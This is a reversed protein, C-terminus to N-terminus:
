DDSPDPKNKAPKTNQAAHTAIIQEYVAITASATKETSFETAIWEKARTGIEERRTRDQYLTRLAAVLGRPEAPEALLLRHPDGRLERMVPLDFAIVPVGVSMAELVTNPTGETRSPFALVDAAALLTAPDDLWDLLKVRDSVTKTRIKKTINRLENGAGAIIFQLPLDRTQAAAEILWEIRKVPDFRGYWAVIFRDHPVGLSQLAARREVVAIERVLPPVVHVQDRKRGFAHVVHDRLSESNVIHGQDWRATLRELRKHWPREVEVTATSTVLPLKLRRCAWRAAINAHFLSAHCVDPAFDRLSKTLRRLAGLDRARRADCAFTAIGADRLQDTVPGAESLCGCAVEVDRERLAIALRALRLPTGGRQHDTVLLAVRM